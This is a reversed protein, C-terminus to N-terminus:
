KQGYAANKGHKREYHVNLLGRGVENQNPTLTLTLYSMKAIEELVVANHLSEAGDAGWTFVVHSKVLVGPIKMAEKKNVTELIVRGTNEEYCRKMESATLARACPVAGCFYDAHTTGLAPVAKGSQAFAAAFTSHTHAVGGIEAIAKYLELHTPLDVSPNLKGDVVRGNLDAVVIDDARMKEYSVGSPKIAVVGKERDIESVNGWTFKVLGHRVLGLNAELVREKLDSYM